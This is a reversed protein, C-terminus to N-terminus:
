VFIGGTSLFAYNIIVSTHGLNFIGIDMLEFMNFANFIYSVWIWETFVLRQSVDIGINLIKASVVHQREMLYEICRRRECWGYCSQFPTKNEDTNRGTFTACVMSSKQQRCFWPLCFIHKNNKRTKFIPSVVMRLRSHTRTIFRMYAPTLLTWIVTNGKCRAGGSRTYSKTDDILRPTRKFHLKM